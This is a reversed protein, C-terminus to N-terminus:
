VSAPPAGHYHRGPRPACAAFPGLLALGAAGEVVDVRSFTRWRGAWKVRCSRAAVVNRVWDADPGYTLAVVL